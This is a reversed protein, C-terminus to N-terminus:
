LRPRPTSSPFVSSCIWNTDLAPSSSPVELNRTQRALWEAVNGGKIQSIGSKGYMGVVGVCHQFITAVNYQSPPPPPSPRFCLCYTPSSFLTRLSKVIMTPTYLYTSVLIAFKYASILICFFFVNFIDVKETQSWELRPTSRIVLCVTALCPTVSWARLLLVQLFSCRTCSTLCLVLTVVLEFVCRTM